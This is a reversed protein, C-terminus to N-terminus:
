RTGIHVIAGMEAAEELFRQAEESSAFVLRVLEGDVVREVAVKAEALNLPTRERILKMLDITRLGIKWGAVIVVHQEGVSM